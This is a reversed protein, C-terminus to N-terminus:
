PCAISMRVCGCCLLFIPYPLTVFPVSRDFCDAVVAAAVRACLQLSSSSPPQVAAPRCSRLTTSQAFIPFHVHVRKYFFGTQMWIKRAYVAIPPASVWDGPPHPFVMGPSTASVRPIAKLIGLALFTKLLNAVRSVSCLDRGFWRCRSGLSRFTGVGGLTESFPALM